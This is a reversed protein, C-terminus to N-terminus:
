EVCAFSPDHWDSCQADSACADFVCYGYHCRAPHRNESSVCDADTACVRDCRKVEGRGPRQCRYVAGPGEDMQARCWADSPCGRHRCLGSLCLVPGDPGAAPCEDDAACRPMCHRSPADCGQDAPCDADVACGVWECAGAHCAEEADCDVDSACPRACVGDAVGGDPLGDPLDVVHSGHCGLILTFALATLRHM